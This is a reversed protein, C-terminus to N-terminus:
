GGLVPLVSEPESFIKSDSIWGCMETVVVMSGCVLDPTAVLVPRNVLVLGVVNVSGEPVMLQVQRERIMMRM